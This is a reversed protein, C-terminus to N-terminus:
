KLLPYYADYDEMAHAARLNRRKVVVVAVAVVLAGAGLLAAVMSPTATSKWNGEGLLAMVLQSPLSLPACRQVGDVGSEPLAVCFLKNSCDECCEGSLTKEHTVASETTYVSGGCAEFPGPTGSPSLCEGAKCVAEAGYTEVEAPDCDTISVSHTCPETEVTSSDYHTFTFDCELLVDTNTATSPDHVLEFALEKTVEIRGYPGPTWALSMPGKSVSALAGSGALKVYCKVDTYKGKVTNANHTLGAESDYAFKMLVFDSGPYACMHSDVTCPEATLETWMDKFQLCVDHPSHPHLVVNFTEAYVLGCHTWAEVYVATEAETFTLPATDDWTSWAELGVSYRWFVYNDVDYSSDVTVDWKSSHEFLDGLTPTYSCGGGFSTCTISRHIDKTGPTIPTPLGAIITATKANAPDTIKAESTVLDETSMQLCHGFSCSDSTATKKEMNELATGCHYDYYHEQLTLAKFCCRTCKLQNMELESLLFPSATPMGQVLDAVFDADFCTTDISRLETPSTEFFDQLAAVTVDCRENAGTTPDYAGNNVVNEPSHFAAFKAEEAIAADLNSASYLVPNAQADSTECQDKVTPPYNDVIAICGTCTSHYRYDTATLALDFVGFSSFTVENELNAPTLAYDKWPAKHTTGTIDGERTATIAIAPDTNTADNENTRADNVYSDKPVPAHVLCDDKLKLFEKEPDSWPCHFGANDTKWYCTPVCVGDEVHEGEPCSCVGRVPAQGYPCSCVGGILTQDGPCSCVDNVLLQGGGLCSCVGDVLTQDGPCSCVGDILNQDGPCSCLNNVLTQDGPCSCANNVLTQDGLCSCVDDLLKQDGPCSCVDNILKQNGPCSCLNNVLTQDGQCACAGGVLTQDGPCSCTGDVLTQDGPCSCTLGVFTQDGPCSCLGNILQQDGPCGCVDNILKQNGPCSCVDNVLQQDGPCSCAGNVLKQDGPCSCLNNVLTQDGPCSCVNSVLSQDGLCSCKGDILQQDGPCSCKGDVLTQDGPCSCVNNALKQDGSCSCVNDILTQDGPCSCKDNVLTQDGSCSCKDDILKQDGPCSCKDDVLTQDGPCSCVDTILTQDGKCSCKDDVLTQDGPCSCKDNVLKEDGPCSCKGDVLTQDGPCSCVDSVLTQDGPCACAGDVFKQNGPCSCLGAILGQGVPCSCAGDILKQDGPCSCLNDLLIQDGPCSCKNDILQQDGLCSCKDDILNQDGPCSCKDAVLTQDGPCSCLNNVLTQDGHCACLGDILTQDGPCSCVGNVLQQDGPCGCVGSILKQDGPCSCVGDVLDQDGPCSCVNGVVTQDGPCSCLNNVLKQDAPCSCVNSVLKQDGPCGCVNDILKEDGPCSCKDGVLTQDGPCSCLGNALKEDGPCSCVNNVLTQDGPCSCVGNVLQQDGPCGCVGSILKQDGPCSCIGGALKQDGPCSCLGNALKQDGPCSCLNDVLAQDGPCSCSGDILTQDGPCKCVGGVLSQGGPCSCVGGVDSLGAPCSCKCKNDSRCSVADVPTPCDVLNRISVPIALNIGSLTTVVIDTPLVGCDLSKCVRVVVAGTVTSPDTGSLVEIKPQSSFSAPTSDAALSYGYTDSHCKIYKFTKSKYEANSISWKKMLWLKIYEDFDLCLSVTIQLDYKEKVACSSGSVPSLLALLETSTELLTSNTGDQPEAEEAVATRYRLLGDEWVDGELKVPESVVEKHAVVATTLAVACASLLAFIRM